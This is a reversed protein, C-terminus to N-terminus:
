PTIASNQSFLKLPFNFFKQTFRTLNAPPYSYNKLFFDGKIKEKDSYKQSNAFEKQSFFLKWWNKLYKPKELKALKFRIGINSIFSMNKRCVEVLSECGAGGILVLGPM